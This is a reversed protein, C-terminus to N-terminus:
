EMAEFMIYIYIYIIYLSTEFLENWSVNQMIYLYSWSGRPSFGFPCLELHCYWRREGVWFCPQLMLVWLWPHLSGDQNLPVRKGQWTVLTLHCFVLISPESCIAALPGLITSQWVDSVMYCKIINCTLQKRLIVLQTCSILRKQYVICAVYSFIFMMFGWVSIIWLLNVLLYQLILTWNFNDTSDDPAHM